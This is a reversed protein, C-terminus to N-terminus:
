NDQEIESLVKSVRIKDIRHRIVKLVEIKLHGVRVTHGVKPLEGVRHILYGAITDSKQEDWEPITTPDIGFFEFFEENNMSGAVEYIGPESEHIKADEQDHEDQIEGVIEELMDELTVIGATGGYEDIVIAMHIRSKQLDKFVDIIAKSEPVRYARRLLTAVKRNRNDEAAYAIRLLDKALLIGIVNDIKEDYVPFRSHGSEAVTKAASEVTTNGDIAVMDIRPTMVERVKIEDFEFVSNILEKKDKAFVGAKGGVDVLFELEEETISAQTSRKGGLLIIMRESLFSLFWVLPFSLYYLVRIGSLAIPALQESHLKCYTKPIIEGFLLVLFTTLITAIGIGSNGFLRTALDTSVASAFVSLLTNFLLITTLVRGPHNLWLNLQTLRGQSTELMHRAKLTGLSTIATEAGSTIMAAVICVAIIVVSEYENILIDWIM